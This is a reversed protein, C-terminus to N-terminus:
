RRVIFEILLSSFSQLNTSEIIHTPLKNWERITQPYFSNQYYNTQASPIIFHYPHHYRTSCQTTPISPAAQNYMIEYDQLVNTIQQNEM